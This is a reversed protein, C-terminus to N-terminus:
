FRELENQANLGEAPEGEAVTDLMQVMPELPVMDGWSSRSHSARHDSMMARIGFESSTPRHRSAVGTESVELDFQELLIGAEGFAQVRFRGVDTGTPGEEDSYLIATNDDYHLWNSIDCPLSKWTKMERKCCVLTRDM